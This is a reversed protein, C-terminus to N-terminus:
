IIRYETLYGPGTRTFQPPAPNSGPVSAHEIQHRWTAKALQAVVDWVYKESGPHVNRIRLVRLLVYRSDSTFEAKLKAQKLVSLIFDKDAKVGGGGGGAEQKSSSSPRVLEPSVSKVKAAMKNNREDVDAEVNSSAKELSATSMKTKKKPVVEVELVEEEAGVEEKDKATGSDRKRRETSKAEPSPSKRKRATVEQGSSGSSKKPAAAATAEPSPSKLLRKKKKSVDEASAPESTDKRKAASQKNAEPSVSKM